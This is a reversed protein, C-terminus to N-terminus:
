LNQEYWTEPMPVEHNYKPNNEILENIYQEADWIEKDSPHNEIKSQSMLEGMIDDIQTSLESYELKAENILKDFQKQKNIM